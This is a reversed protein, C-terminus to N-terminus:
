VTALGNLDNRHLHSDASEPDLVAHELDVAFSDHELAHVAVLEAQVAAHDGTLLGERVNQEHLREVDIRHARAVIGVVCEQILQAALVAQIDYVLHVEFGVGDPVLDSIEAVVVVSKRTVFWLPHRSQAIPGRVHEFPVLVVGRDDHPRQAVLGVAALVQQLERVEEPREVAGTWNVVLSHVPIRTVRLGRIDRALHVSRGRVDLGVELLVPVLWEDQALVGVRHAVRKARHVLVGLQGVPFRKVLTPEDPVKSVLGNLHRVAVALGEKAVASVVPLGWVIAVETAVSDQVRVVSGLREHLLHLVEILRELNLNALVQHGHVVAGVEGAGVLEPTLRLESTLSLYEVDNRELEGNARTLASANVHRKLDRFVSLVRDRHREAQQLCLRPSRGTVLDRPALAHEAGAGHRCLVRFCLWRELQNLTDM